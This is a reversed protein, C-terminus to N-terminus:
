DAHNLHDLFAFDDADDVAFIAAADIMPGLTRRVMVADLDGQGEPVQILVGGIKGCGDMMEAIRRLHDEADDLMTETLWGLPDILLGIPTSEMRRAWSATSIADSLMGEASPRILLEIGRNRAVDVAALVAADFAEWGKAMWRMPDPEDDARGCKVILRGGPIEDPWLDLDDGIVWDHELAWPTNSQYMEYLGTSKTTNVYEPM